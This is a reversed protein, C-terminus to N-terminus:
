HMSIDYLILLITDRGNTYIPLQRIEVIYLLQAIQENKNLAMLPVPLRYMRDVIM